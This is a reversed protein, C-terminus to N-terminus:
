LGDPEQWSGSFMRVGDITVEGNLVMAERTARSSTRVEAHGGGPLQMDICIETRAFAADPRTATTTTQSSQHWRFTVGAPTRLDTVYATQVSVAGTVADREVKRTVPMMVAGWPRRNIAPDPGRLVPEDLVETAEPVVPVRVLSGALEVRMTPNTGLPWIRPFDSCAIALRIRHGAPVFYSTPYLAIRYEEVVGVEVLQAREFSERHAASLYGTTILTSSDDPAVACLKAVLQLEDGDELAVRLIAEPSGTIEMGQELPASTYTLSRLDDQAQESPYPGGFLTSTGVTPDARYTDSGEGSASGLARGPQLHWEQTQTRAIPWEREHRWREAGQVYLKVEPEDAVGNAKGKLWHDFFRVLEHPFDIPAHAAFHPQTHPWPGMLLKRPGAVRQYIDPMAQAGAGDRWGGVILTPVAVQEVPIAREKWHEDYEKHPQAELGQLDGRQLRGLRERWVRMWRGDPDVFGPPALDFALQWSVWSLTDVARTCGGPHLTVYGDSDTVVPVIAKLHPARQAAVALSIMGGWSSGWVAVGGDCWDQAAAWEVVQVGDAAERKSNLRPVEGASSGAGRVDVVLSAYGREALYGHVYAVNAGIFDDKRYGTMNTVVAPFRGPADPLALDAALEVGDGLRILMNREHRVGFLAENVM